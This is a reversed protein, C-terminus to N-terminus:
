LYEWFKKMVDYLVESEYDVRIPEDSEEQSVELKMRYPSEMTFVCGKDLNMLAREVGARIERYVVQPSKSTACNRGHAFKTEVTEIPGFNDFAEKCAMNDGSLFVVPVGFQAAYLSNFAPEFLPKDNIRFDIVKLSMTHSLTGMQEGARAHAGIFLLADYTSDIGLVMTHPTGPVRGKTLKARSDLLLPNVNINGSHGDRVIIETAGAAIAGEVAANIEGTLIDCNRDFHPHGPYIEDWNVVNTVGEFDVQIMIKLGNGSKGRLMKENILDM